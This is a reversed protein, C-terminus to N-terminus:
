SFFFAVVAEYFIIFYADCSCVDSGWRLLSDGSLLRTRPSLLLPRGNKMWSIQPPPNGAARCELTVVSDQTVQVERPVTSEDSISPPVTAVLHLLCYFVSGLPSLYCSVFEFKGLVHVTYIKSDQGVTSVALCTYTGSDEASLRLLTLKSGDPSMRYLYM